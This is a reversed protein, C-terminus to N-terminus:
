PQIIDLFKKFSQFDNQFSHFTLSLFIHSKFWWSYHHIRQECCSKYGCSHSEPGRGPPSDFTKSQISSKSLGTLSCAAWLYSPHTVVPRELESLFFLILSRGSCVLSVPFVFSFNLKFNKILSTICINLLINRLWLFSYIWAMYNQKFGVCCQLNIM